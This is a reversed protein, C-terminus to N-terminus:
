NISPIVEVSDRTIIAQSGDAFKFVEGTEIHDFTRAIVRADEVDGEVGNERLVRKAHAAATSSDWVMIMYAGLIQATNMHKHQNM